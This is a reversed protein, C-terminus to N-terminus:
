LANSRRIEHTRRKITTMAKAEYASRDLGDDSDDMVPIRTPPSRRNKITAM